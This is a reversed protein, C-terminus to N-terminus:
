YVYFYTVTFLKAHSNNKILWPISQKHHYKDQGFIFSIFVSPCLLDETLHRRSPIFARAFMGIYFHQHALHCIFDYDVNMWDVRSM